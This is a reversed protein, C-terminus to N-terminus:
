NIDGHGQWFKDVQARLTPFTALEPDQAFLSRAAERAMVLTATDSLQAVRLDPLGSQRTGLFDGPGRLELDKEALVFGDTSAVLADLRELSDPSQSDTFLACFSEHQGRGVRGRLQHLQALGFRHADEILMLTANPVDIGVEVVTTAVLIQYDGAAFASMVTDKEAGNMRGHLLGVALDPFIDNSLKAHGEVASGVDLKDSEEVLPYVIFAQRGDAVQKRVFRYLRERERPTFRKTTIPTRGPPMEDIISIDLDGFVTLALSRPIPTASMVLVHPQVDINQSRLAGRQEVGFRHQEDVVVFGLSSFEVGEQILATTGIVVDISGDALGDLVEQRQSGTVRGTLLATRVPTGGALALRELLASIGRFHQEALIQTPALLASQYGNAAAVFMAGAAVVTKGSGVDGQILRAMPVTRDIDQVVEALVRAQAGTLQFPLSATYSAMMAEDSALSPATASKLQRRREEVGLQILFFEDFALRQRAAEMKAMNEPFHIQQLAEARGMLGLKAMVQAPVPDDVFKGWTELALRALKVISGNTVGETLHYVPIIAGTTVADQEIPEFSPNDLSKNGMFLSVKGSFRMPRGPHLKKRVYPSWWTAHLTGTGDGLIGQVMTRNRALKKDNLEWLNAIVTVQEGPQLKDITRLTSYDDYRHPLHWLLDNITYIGLKVLTKATVKGVSPLVNVPSNLGQADLAAGDRVPRKPASQSTEQKIRARRSAADTPEPPVYGEQLSEYYDYYDDNSGKSEPEKTTPQKAAAQKGAAQKAEAQKATPQKSPQTPKPAKAAKEVKPPKEPSPPPPADLVVKTVVEQDPTTGTVTAALDPLVDPDDTAALIKAAIAPRDEESADLYTQLMELVADILVADVQDQKADIAWRKRLAQIGGAVARNRWGQRKELEFIRKLREFVDKAM